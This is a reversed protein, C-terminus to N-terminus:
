NWNEFEELEATYYSHNTPVIEFPKSYQYQNKWPGPGSPIKIDSNPGTFKAFWSRTIPNHRLWHAERRPVTGKVLTRVIETGSRQLRPIPDCDKYRILHTPTTTSELHSLKGSWYTNNKYQQSFDKPINSPRWFFYSLIHQLVAGTLINTKPDKHFIDYAQQIWNRYPLWM